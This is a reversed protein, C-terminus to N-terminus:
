PSKNKNNELTEKETTFPKGYGGNSHINSVSEKIIDTTQMFKTVCRTLCNGEGINM